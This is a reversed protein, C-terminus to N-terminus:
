VLQQYIEFTSNACKEWTMERAHHYGQQVLIDLKERHHYAYKVAEYIEESKLPNVLLAAGNAVEPLSTTNSTIVPLKSAFAELVPLGFGEALSPFLLVLASQLLARLEFDSIHDLRLCWGEQTALNIEREIDGTEWGIRGVVVLPLQKRTSLPFNKLAEFVRLLNKRPQLTGVTILFQDPIGFKKKVLARDLEDIKEFFRADVGLPVVSIKDAPIKFHKSIEARSYDSITIVRDARRTVNAWLKYKLVSAVNQSGLYEPHSLPIADMISAVVGIDSVIPVLHDTAHILNVKEDFDNSSLPFGLLGSILKSHYGSFKIINSTISIGQNKYGFTYPNIELEQQNLLAKYLERTYNGLGDMGNTALGKAVLTMGFAVRM